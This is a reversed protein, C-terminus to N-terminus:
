LNNLADQLITKAYVDEKEEALFDMVKDFNIWRSDQYESPTLKVMAKEAPSIELLHTFNITHSGNEQPAQARVSYYASYVEYFKFRSLDDIQLGTELFLKRRAAEEPREGAIMRGGIIAWHNARPEINRKTLLMQGECILVSDGCAIAVSDLIQGYVEDSFKCSAIKEKRKEELHKM